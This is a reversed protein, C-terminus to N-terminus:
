RAVGAAQHGHGARRPPDIPYPVDEGHGQLAVRFCRPSTSNGGGPLCLANSGNRKTQTARPSEDEAFSGWAAAVLM